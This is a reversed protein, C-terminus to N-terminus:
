EKPKEISGVRVPSACGNDYLKAVNL